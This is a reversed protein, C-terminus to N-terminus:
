AMSCAPPQETQQWPVTTLIRHRGGRIEFIFEDTFAQHDEKRLKKDGQPFDDGARVEMGELAAILKPTDARGRFGSKQIGLRLFNMGEYNAQTYRDPMIGEPEFKKTLEIVEAFWKRHYPTDLTSEFVPVYRDIGVFGEIKVGLVRLNAQAAIGGDGAWRYKKTLGLDYAQTTAIVADKGFLIGLLGDFQGRIKSLLPRMDATGVPIGTAGVVQGGLQRIENAYADRTSQGWTYDAWVIHWRKGMKILTPAFAVAQAPAYDFPRFSYRSCRTTTIRTDLCVGIMNVIRHQEWVGMCALCVDSLWGGQHADIRDETALKEAKRRGIDPRSQDDEVILEVPRGNIGGSANIRRVALETGTLAMRGGIAAAGSLPQLSGIKYPRAQGFAGHWPAPVLM